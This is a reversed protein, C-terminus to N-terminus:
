VPSRLAGCFKQRVCLSSHQVGQVHGRYPFHRVINRRLDRRKGMRSKIGEIWNEGCTSSLRGPSHKTVGPRLSRISRRCQSLFFTTFRRGLLGSCPRENFWRYWSRLQMAGSHKEPGCRRVERLALFRRFPSDKVADRLNWAPACSRWFSLSLPEAEM